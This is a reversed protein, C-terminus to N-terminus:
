GGFLGERSFSEEYGVHLPTQDAADVTFGLRNTRSSGLDSRQKGMMVIQNYTRMLGTGFSSAFIRPTYSFRALM